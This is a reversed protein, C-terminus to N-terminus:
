NERWLTKKEQRNKLIAAAAVWQSRRRCRCDVWKRESQQMSLSTATPQQTAANVHIPMQLM